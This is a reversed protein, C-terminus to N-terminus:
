TGDSVELVTWILHQTDFQLKFSIANNNVHFIHHITRGVRVKHSYGIQSIAYARGNWRVTHITVPLKGRTYSALVSVREHIKELM